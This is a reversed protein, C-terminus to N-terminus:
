DLIIVSCHFHGNSVSARSVKVCGRPAQPPPPRFGESARLHQSFDASRGILDKQSHTEKSQQVAAFNGITRQLFAV